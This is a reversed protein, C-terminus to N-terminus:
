FLRFRAHPDALPAPRPPKRGRGTKAARHCRSPCGRRFSRNGPQPPQLAPKSKTLGGLWSPLLSFHNREVQCYLSILSPVHRRSARPRKRVFTIIARAFTPRDHSRRPVLSQNRDECSEDGQSASESSSSPTRWNWFRCGQSTLTHARRPQLPFVRRTSSSVSPKKSSSWASWMHM